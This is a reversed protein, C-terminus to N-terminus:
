DFYGKTNVNKSFIMSFSPTDLPYDTPIKVRGVNYSLNQDALRTIL